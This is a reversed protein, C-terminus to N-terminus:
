RNGNKKLEEIEKELKTIKEGDWKIMCYAIGLGFSTGFWLYWNNIIISPNPYVVIVFCWAFLFGIIIDLVKKM